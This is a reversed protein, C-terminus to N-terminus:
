VAVGEGGEVGMGRLTREEVWRESAQLTVGCKSSEHFCTGWRGVYTCDDQLDSVFSAVTWKLAM